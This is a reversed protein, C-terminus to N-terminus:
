GSVHAQNLMEFLLKEVERWVVDGRQKKEQSAWGSYFKVKFCSEFLFENKRVKTAKGDM